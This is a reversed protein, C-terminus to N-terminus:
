TAALRAGSVQNLREQEDASLSWDVAGVNEDVLEPTDCGAVTVSVGPQAMVWSLAVQAPPVSRASAIDLVTNLLGAGRGDLVRDFEKHSREAWLSGPPPPLGPHYAGTLLGVGLPSIAMLGRGTEQCFPIMDTEISRDLLSYVNQVTVPPPAM